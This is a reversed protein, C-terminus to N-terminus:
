HLSRKLSSTVDVDDRGNSIELMIKSVVKELSDEYCRKFTQYQRRERENPENRWSSTYDEKLGQLNKINEEGAVGIIGKCTWLCSIAEDLPAFYMFDGKRSILFPTRLIDKSLNFTREFLDYILYMRSRNSRHEDLLNYYDLFSRCILGDKEANFLMRIMFLDKGSDEKDFLTYLKTEADMDHTKGYGAFFNNLFLNNKKFYDQMLDSFDEKLLVQGKGREEENLKRNEFGIEKMKKVHFDFDGLFKEYYKQESLNFSFITVPFDIEEDTIIDKIRKMEGISVVM